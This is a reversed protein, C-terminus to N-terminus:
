WSGSAGGGSFGGGGGGFGGRGGGFGGSGGRGGGGMLIWPVGLLGRRRKGGGLQLLFFFLAICVLGGPFRVGQGRSSRQAQQVPGGPTEVGALQLAQRAALHLGDGYRGARFAPALTDRIIRSSGADTIEGELGGGVEIRMRRDQVAVVFLLGDDKEKSGLQWKEAVRISYDEVAEGELSPVTLFAVQPGGKEKVAYALDELRRRSAADIVGAEDVV